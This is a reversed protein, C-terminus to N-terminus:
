SIQVLHCTQRAASAADPRLVRVQEDSRRGPRVGAFRVPRTPVLITAIMHQVEADHQNLTRLRVRITGRPAGSSSPRKEVVEGVVRIRDGPRLPGWRLEDAGLGILGGAVAPGHDM